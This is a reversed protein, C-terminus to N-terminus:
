CNKSATSRFIVTRHVTARRREYLETLFPLEGLVFYLSAPEVLYQEPRRIDADPEHYDARQQYAQRIWPWDAFHCLCLIREYELELQTSSFRWGPSAPRSSHDEPPDHADTGHGRRLRCLCASSPAWADPSM